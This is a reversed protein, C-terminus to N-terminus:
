MLGQVRTKRVEELQAELEAVTKAAPKSPTPRKGPRPQGPQVHALIARAAATRASPSAAGDEAVQQLSQLAAREFDALESKKTM